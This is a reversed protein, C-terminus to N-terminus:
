GEWATYQQGTTGGYVSIAGRLVVVGSEYAMFPNLRVSPQSPAAATGDWRIWLEEDSVNEFYFWQRLPNAAMVSQAVGGTVVSGGRNTPADIGLPDGWVPAAVM